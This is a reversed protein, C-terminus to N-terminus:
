YESPCDLWSPGLAVGALLYLFSTTLPLRKVLTGALAMMIFLAGAIVFWLNFNM